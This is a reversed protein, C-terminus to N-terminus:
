SHCGHSSLVTKGFYAKIYPVHINNETCNIKDFTVFQWNFSGTPATQDADM